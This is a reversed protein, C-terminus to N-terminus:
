YLLSTWINSGYLVGECASHVSSMDAPPYDVSSVIGSSSLAVCLSGCLQYCHEVEFNSYTEVASAGEQAEEM